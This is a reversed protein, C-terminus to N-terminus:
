WSRVTLSASAIITRPRKQNSGDANMVYIEANGDRTSTFLIKSGDASFSAEGDFTTNFTLRKPDSGDTNMVYVESNNSGDRNSSFVIKEQALVPVAFTILAILVLSLFIFNIKGRYM